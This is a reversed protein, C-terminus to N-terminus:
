LPTEIAKTLINDVAMSSFKWKILPVWAVNKMLLVGSEHRRGGVAVWQDGCFTAEPRYPTKFFLILSFPTM